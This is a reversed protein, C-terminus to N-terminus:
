CKRCDYWWLLWFERCYVWLRHNFLRIQLDFISFISPFARSYFCIMSDIRFLQSTRRAAGIHLYNIKFKFICLCCIETFHRFHSNGIEWHDKWSNFYLNDIEKAPMQQLSKLSKWGVIALDTETWLTTNGNSSVRKEISKYCSKPLSPLFINFMVDISRNSKIYWKRM